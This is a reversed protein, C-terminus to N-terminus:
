KIGLHNKVSESLVNFAIKSLFSISASTFTSAIEKTNKWVKDDRINDLFEHGKWTIKSLSFFHIKGNIIKHNFDIFDAEKLRYLTYFVVDHGFETVCDFQKLEEYNFNQFLFDQKDEIELLVKRVCEHNLKM